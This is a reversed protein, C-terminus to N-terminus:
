KAATLDLTSLISAPMDPNPREVTFNAEIEALKANVAANELEIALEERVTDFAPPMVDRTEFKKIVHWGFQTQVPASVAGIELDVVASEFEPVMQGMGFWGLDGGRPGSPGTSFEKALEAFDAGEALKAVLDKAEAESDVLIHSAKFQVERGASTYRTEYLALLAEDSVAEARIQDIMLSSLLTRRENEMATAVWAPTTEVSQALFTQQVLQDVIGKFLVDDTLTQYQEPLQRKIDLVHAVTIEVDGIKAVVSDLTTEQAFAGTVSAVLFAAGCFLSHSKAM